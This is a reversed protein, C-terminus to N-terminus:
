MLTYPVQAKIVDPVLVQTFPHASSLMREYVAAGTEADDFFYVYTGTVSGSRRRIRVHLESRGRGIPSPSATLRERQRADLFRFSHVGSQAPGYQWASGKAHSVGDGPNAAGWEHKPVYGSM